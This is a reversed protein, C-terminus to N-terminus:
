WEFPGRVTKAAQEVDKPTIGYLAKFVRNMHSQDSFGAAFAAEALRGGASIVDKARAARAARIFAGPTTALENQFDRFVQSRTVNALGALSALSIEDTLCRDIEDRYLQVRM